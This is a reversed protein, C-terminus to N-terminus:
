FYALQRFRVSPGGVLGARADIIGIRHHEVEFTIVVDSSESQVTYVHRDADVRVNDVPPAVSSIRVHEFYPASVWFNVDGPAARLHLTITAAAGRRVFRDFQVFVPDEPRGAAGRSLPGGMGTLGLAASAVFAFLLAIGVRQALWEKKQFAIDEDVDLGRSTRSM